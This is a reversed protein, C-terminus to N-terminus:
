NTSNAADYRTITSGNILNGAAVLVGDVLLAHTQTVYL